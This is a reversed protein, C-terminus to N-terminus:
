RMRNIAPALAGAASLIAELSEVFREVIPADSPVQRVVELAGTAISERLAGVQTLMAQLFQALEAPDLDHRVLVAADASPVRTLAALGTGQTRFLRRDVLARRLRGQPDFQYYPDEGLYLSLRGDRHFGAVIAESSETGRLEVREALAVADRMPDESNIAVDESNAPQSPM